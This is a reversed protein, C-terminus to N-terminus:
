RCRHQCSDSMVPQRRDPSQGTWMALRRALPDEKFANGCPPQSAAQAWRAPVAVVAKAGIAGNGDRERSPKSLQNAPNVTPEHHRGAQRKTALSASQAPTTAAKATLIL